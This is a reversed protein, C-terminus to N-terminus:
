AELFAQRSTIVLEPSVATRQSAISMRTLSPMGGLWLALLKLSCGERGV